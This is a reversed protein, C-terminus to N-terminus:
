AAAVKFTGAPQASSQDAFTAATLDPWTGFTQSLVSIGGVANQLINAQTVAGIWFGFATGHPALGNLIPAADSNTAFWHLGPELTFPGGTLAVSFNGVVTGAQSPTSGVLTTPRRTTAHSRYIAAQVNSNTAVTNVRFGLESISVRSMILMPTLRIQGSSMGANALTTQFPFTPYFYGPAYGPHHVRLAAVAAAFDTLDVGTLAEVDKPM